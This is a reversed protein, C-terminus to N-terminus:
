ASICNMVTDFLDNKRIPKLLRGNAEPVQHGDDNFASVVIIPTNGMARIQRALKMGDMVPMQLDTIVIDPHEAKYVAIAELGNAASFVQKFRRKLLMIVSERMMDEDEVYLVTIEKLKEYDVNGEIFLCM